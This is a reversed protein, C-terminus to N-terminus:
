EHLSVGGHDSVRGIVFSETGAERLAAQASKVESEPVAVVFGIGMNFVNYMTDQDLKGLAATVEFIPLSPWSGLQIEYGLSEPSMRPINEFFGGGTINAMGHVNVGSRLLALIPQVYLKTPTLLAEGVTAAAGAAPTIATDAPLSAIVEALETSAVYGADKFFVKRLLSYGNSHPGSSPLGILVDGPAVDQGTVIDSKEVAAVCFGAIDYTDPEYLDNMEATEGGILACGSEKCGAAIGHVIDAVVSPEAKPIAIYDLFFLPEAGQAIVDNVCMAVADIGVTTHIGTEFALMLKTGVGDTGSVLVPERYGAAALDFMGGFSGIGGMVGPRTTAAVDDRIRRVVEYGRELDVGAAAYAAGAQAHPAPSHSQTSM